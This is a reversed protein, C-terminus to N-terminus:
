VLLILVRASTAMRFHYVKTQGSPHAVLRLVILACPSHNHVAFDYMPTVVLFM